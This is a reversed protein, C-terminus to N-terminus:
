ITRNKRVNNQLLPYIYFSWFLPYVAGISVTISVLQSIFAKLEIQYQSLYYSLTNMSFFTIVIEPVVLTVFIIAAWLLLENLKIVVQRIAEKKNANNVHFQAFIEKLVIILDKLKKLLPVLAGIILTLVTIINLTKEIM